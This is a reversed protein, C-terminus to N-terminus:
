ADPDLPGDDEEPEQELTFAPINAGYQIELALWEFVLTRSGAWGPRRPVNDYYSRPTWHWLWPLVQVKVTLSPWTMVTDRWHIRAM